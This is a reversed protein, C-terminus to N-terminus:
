IYEDQMMVLTKYLYVDVKVVFIWENGLLHTFTSGTIMAKTKLDGTPFTREAQMMWTKINICM